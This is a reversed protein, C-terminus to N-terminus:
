RQIEEFSMSCDKGEGIVFVPKHERRDFTMSLFGPTSYHGATDILFRGPIIAELDIDAYCIGEKDHPLESLIKGNPGIIMTYGYGNVMMERMAPTECIADSQQDTWMQSCMLVFCQNAIAYYQCAIISAERRFCHEENPMAIPWSAVHIQENLAGMAAINMPIQHEWCQLGGLNGYESKIIPAMSGDGDGWITKEANTAKFKRHKGLLDGNPGFWLQTLYLSAGDKETVSVCVYMGNRKAAQSLMQVVPGPIEVAQKYFEIYHRLEYGVDGMWIWYPYCPILAEGFGIIKAGNRGAEDIADCVKKATAMKDIMIPAVQAAAVKVKPFSAM